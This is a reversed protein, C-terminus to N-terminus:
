IKISGCFSLFFHNSVVLAMELTHSKLFFVVMDAVFNSTSSQEQQAYHGLHRPCAISRVVAVSSCAFAPTDNLSSEAEKSQKCRPPRCLYITFKFVSRSLANMVLLYVIMMAVSHEM